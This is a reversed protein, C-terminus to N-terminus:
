ADSKDLTDLYLLRMTTCPSKIILLMDSQTELGYLLVLIAHKICGHVIVPCKDM